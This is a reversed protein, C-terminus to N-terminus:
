DLGAYPTEVYVTARYKGPIETTTMVVVPIESKREGFAAWVVSTPTPQLRNCGFEHDAVTWARAGWAM